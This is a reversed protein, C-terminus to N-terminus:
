LGSVEFATLWKDYEDALVGQFQFSTTELIDSIVALKSKNGELPILIEEELTEQYEKELKERDKDSVDYEKKGDKEILIYEGNKDKKAYKKVIAIRRKDAESFFESCARIFRTRERSQEKSLPLAKLWQVLYLLHALKIKLGKDNNKM